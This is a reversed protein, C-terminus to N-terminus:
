QMRRSFLQSNARFVNTQSKCVKYNGLNLGDDCEIEKLKAGVIMMEVNQHITCASLTHVVIVQWCVTRPRCNLLNRFGLKKQLISKRLCNM